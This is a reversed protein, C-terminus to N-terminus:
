YLPFEPPKETSAQKEGRHLEIKINGSLWRGIAPAISFPFYNSLHFEKHVFDGATDLGPAKIYPPRDTRPEFHVTRIGM